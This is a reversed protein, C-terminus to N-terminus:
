TGVPARTRRSRERATSCQNIAGRADRVHSQYMLDLNVVPIGWILAEVARRHITRTALDATSFTMSEPARTPTTM